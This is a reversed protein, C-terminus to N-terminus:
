IAERYPGTREQLVWTESDGRMRKSFAVPNPAFPLELCKVEAIMTLGLLCSQDSQRHIRYGEGDYTESRGKTAYKEEGPIYCYARASPLHQQLLSYHDPFADVFLVCLSGM